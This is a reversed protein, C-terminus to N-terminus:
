PQDGLNGEPRRYGVSDLHRKMFDHFDRLPEDPNGPALPATSSRPAFPDEPRRRLQPLVCRELWEKGTANPM